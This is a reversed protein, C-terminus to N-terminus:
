HHLGLVGVVIEIAILVIVILELFESRAVQAQDVLYRYVDGVADLKGEIQRQWVELGLRSAIARYIRAYYADGTIKLANNSRDALERIDVLLFRLQAARRESERRHLAGRHPPFDGAYISDLEADLRADYTRFEVLQSNAFELLDLVVNADPESDYIFASDWQVVVLDDPFYSFHFRIAEAQQDPSLDHPEATMLRVLSSRCDDLLTQAMLQPEFDEVAVVFYDEVLAEHPDDLALSCDNLVQGLLGRALLALRDDKRLELALEELGSWPGSYPFSFRISIVGYDYIKARTSATHSDVTIPPLNAALPPIAFQIAEPSPITRLLPAPEASEGAVSSLRTLDITDAVDFVYCAFFTASSISPDASATAPDRLAM